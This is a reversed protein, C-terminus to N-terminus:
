WKFKSFAGRYGKDWLMTKLQGMTDADDVNGVLYWLPIGTWVHGQADTWTTGHCGPAAGSEFTAKDM